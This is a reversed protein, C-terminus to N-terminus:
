IEVVDMGLEKAHEAYDPHAGIVRIGLVCDCLLEEEFTTKHTLDSFMSLRLKRELDNSTCRYKTGDCEFVNVVLGDPLVMSGDNFHWHNLAPRYKLEDNFLSGKLEYAWKMDDPMFDHFSEILFGDPLVSFDFRKNSM